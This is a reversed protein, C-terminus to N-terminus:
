FYRRAADMLEPAQYDQMRMSAYADLLGIGRQIALVTSLGASSVSMDRTLANSGTYYDWARLAYDHRTPLQRSVVEAAEERQAYLAETSALLVAPFRQLLDANREAWNLSANVSVFQWHPHLRHGLGHDRVDDSAEGAGSAQAFLSSEGPHFNM